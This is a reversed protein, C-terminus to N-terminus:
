YSRTHTEYSDSHDSALVTKNAMFFVMSLVGLACLLLMFGQLQRYRYAKEPKQAAITAQQSMLLFYMFAFWSIIVVIFSIVSGAIWLQSFDYHQLSILTFGSALQLIAFPIIVLSTQAQIRDSVGRGNRLMSRWLHYSYAMSTLVFAASIIHLIKLYNYLM